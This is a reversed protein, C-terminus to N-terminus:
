KLIECVQKYWEMFEQINFFELWNLNNDKATQRKLVDRVTWTEIANLYFKSNKAKDQWRKLQKKCGKNDDYPFGGHTWTGNYELYLDLEPLYFDCYFPYKESKYQRIVIFKKTLLNYIKEETSSTNFSNNKRKTEIIKFVMNPINDVIKQKIQLAEKTLITENFNENDTNKNDTVAFVKMVNDIGYKDILTNKIKQKKTETSNTSEVGYRELCTEKIKNYVEKSQAPNEVGYNKLCTQKKKDKVENLQSINEVGYKALNTRKRLATKQDKTKAIKYKKCAVKIKEPKCNCIKATEERSLGCDLYLYKIDEIEPYEGRNLPTEIYNRKLKSLDVM